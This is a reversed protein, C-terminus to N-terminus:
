RRLPAALDDALDLEALSAAAEIHRHVSEASVCKTIQADFGVRQAVASAIRESMRTILLAV